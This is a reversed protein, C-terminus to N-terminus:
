LPLIVCARSSRFLCRLRSLFRCVPLQPTTGQGRDEFHANAKGLAASAAVLTNSIRLRRASEASVRFKKTFHLSTVSLLDVSKRLSRQSFTARRAALEGACDAFFC